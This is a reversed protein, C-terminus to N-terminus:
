GGGYRQLQQAEGTLDASRRDEHEPGQDTGSGYKFRSRLSFIFENSHSSVAGVSLRMKVGVGAIKPIKDSIRWMAALKSAM